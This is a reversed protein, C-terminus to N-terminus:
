FFIDITTDFWITDGWCTEGPINAQLFAIILQKRNFYDRGMWNLRWEFDLKWGQQEFTMLVPGLRIGTLGHSCVDCMM